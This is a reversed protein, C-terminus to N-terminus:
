SGGPRPSMWRILNCGILKLGGLLLVTVDAETTVLAEACTGPTPPASSWFTAGELTKFFIEFRMRVEGKEKM